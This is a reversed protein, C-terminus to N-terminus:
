YYKKTLNTLNINNSFKAHTTQAFRNVHLLMFSFSGIVEVSLEMFTNTADWARLGLAYADVIFDTVSGQDVIGSVERGTDGIRVDIDIGNDLLGVGICIGRWHLCVDSSTDQSGVTGGSTHAQAQTRRDTKTHMCTFTRCAARRTEFICLYSRQDKGNVTAHVECNFMEEHQWTKCRYQPLDNLTNVNNKKTVLRVLKRKSRQPDCVKAPVRPPVETSYHWMSKQADIYDGSTRAHRCYRVAACYRRYRNRVALLVKQLAPFVAFVFQVITFIIERAPHM